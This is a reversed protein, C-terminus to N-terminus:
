TAPTLPYERRIRNLRGMAWAPVYRPEAVTEVVEVANVEAWAFSDLVENKLLSWDEQGYLAALMMRTFGWFSQRRTGWNTFEHCPDQFFGLEEKLKAGPEKREAAIFERLDGWWKTDQGVFVLRLASTEYAKGFLPLHPQPMEEIEPHPLPEVERVFEQILPTYYSLYREILLPKPSM